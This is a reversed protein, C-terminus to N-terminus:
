AASMSCTHFAAFLAAGGSKHDWLPIFIPLISTTQNTGNGLCFQFVPKCCGCALTAGGCQRPYLGTGVSLSLPRVLTRYSCVVRAFFKTVESRNLRETPSHTPQDTMWVLCRCYVIRWCLGGPSTCDQPLCCHEVKRTVAPLTRCM